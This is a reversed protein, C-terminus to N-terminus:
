NLSKLNTQVYEGVLQAKEAIDETLPTGRKFIVKGNKKVDSKLFRISNKIIVADGCIVDEAPFKRNGVYIATIIFKDFSIDTLKGIYNGECDFVPKGLRVAKEEEGRSAPYSFTINTKISKINKVPIDFELEDRDACTLSCIKNGCANVSIVYGSRGAPSEVMKGFIQTLKM